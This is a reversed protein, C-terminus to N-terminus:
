DERRILNALQVAQVPNLDKRENLRRANIALAKLDGTNLQLRPLIVLNETSPFNQSLEEAEQRASILDGLKTKAAISLRHLQESITLDAFLNQHSQLIRLSEAPRNAYLNAMGAIRLADATGIRTMLEQGLDAVAPWNERLAEFDCYDLLADPANASKYRHILHKAYSDWDGSLQAETRLIESWLPDIREIDFEQLERKAEQTKGSRWLALSHLHQWGRENKEKIFLPRATELMDLAEITKSERIKVVVLSMLRFINPDDTKIEAALAEETPAFSMVCRQAM